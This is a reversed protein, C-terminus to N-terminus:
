RELASPLQYYILDNLRDELEAVRRELRERAAKEVLYAQEWAWSTDRASQAMLDLAM